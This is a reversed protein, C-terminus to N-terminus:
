TLTELLLRPVSAYTLENGATATPHFYMGATM